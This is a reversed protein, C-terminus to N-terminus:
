YTHMFCASKTVFVAPSLNWVLVNCVRPRCPAYGPKKKKSFISMYKSSTKSVKFQFVNKTKKARTEFRTDGPSYVLVPPNKATKLLVYM